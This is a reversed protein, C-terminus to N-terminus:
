IQKISYKRSCSSGWEDMNWVSGAMVSQLDSHTKASFFFDWSPSGTANTLNLWQWQWLKPRHWVRRYWLVQNILSLNCLMYVFCARLKDDNLSFATKRLPTWDTLWALTPPSFPFAAQQQWESSSPGNPDKDNRKVHVSCLLFSRIFVTMGCESWMM